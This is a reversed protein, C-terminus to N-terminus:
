VKREVKGRQLATFILSTVGLRRKQLRLLGLTRLTRMRDEGSM